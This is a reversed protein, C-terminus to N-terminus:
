ANESKYRELAETVIESIERKSTVARIKLWQSLDPPLYITHRERKNPREPEQTDSRKSTQTDLHEPEQVSPRELTQDQSKGGITGYRSRQQSIGGIRPKKEEQSM